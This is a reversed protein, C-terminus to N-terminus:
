YLFLPRLIYFGCYDSLLFLPVMLWGGKTVLDWYSVDAVTEMLFIM